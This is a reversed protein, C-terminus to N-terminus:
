GARLNEVTRERNRFTLLNYHTSSNRLIVASQRVQKAVLRSDGGSGNNSDASNQYTPGPSRISTVNSTSMLDPVVGAFPTQSAFTSPTARATSDCAHCDALTKRNVKTAPPSAATPTVISSSVADAASADDNLLCTWGKPGSATGRCYGCYRTPRRAPSGSCKTDQCSYM